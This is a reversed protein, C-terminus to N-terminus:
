HRIVRHRLKKACLVGLICKVADPILFPFVCVSLISLIGDTSRTYIALYWVTGFLYLALMGAACSIVSNLFSGAESKSFAGIIIPLFAMGIIYGGTPGLFVGLGSKFGAFVPFGAMGILLYVLVAFFSRKRGFALSILIVGFNQMTFPIPTPVCVWSCIILFVSCLSIYSIDRTSFLTKRM